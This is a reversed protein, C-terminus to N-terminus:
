SMGQSKRLPICTKLVHAQWFSGHSMFMCSKMWKLKWNKKEGGVTNFFYGYLCMSGSPVKEGTFSSLKSPPLSM